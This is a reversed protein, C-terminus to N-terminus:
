DLWRVNDLNEGIWIQIAEDDQNLGIPVRCRYRREYCESGGCWRKTPHEDFQSTEDWWEYNFYDPGDLLNHLPAERMEQMIEIDIEERIPKSIAEHFKDFESV